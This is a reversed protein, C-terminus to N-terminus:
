KLLRLASIYSCLCPVIHGHSFRIGLHSGPKSDIYVNNNGKLITKEHDELVIYFAIYDLFFGM